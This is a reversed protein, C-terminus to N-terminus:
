TVQAMKYGLGITGVVSMTDAITHFYKNVRLACACRPNCYKTQTHTDLDECSFGTRHYYNYGERPHPSACQHQAVGSVLTSSWVGLLSIVRGPQQNINHPYENHWCVVFSCDHKLM